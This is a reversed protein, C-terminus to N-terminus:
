SLEHNMAVTTAVEVDILDCQDVAKNGLIGAASAGIQRSQGTPCQCPVLDITSQFLHGGPDGHQPHLVVSEDCKGWRTALRGICRDSDGCTGIGTLRDALRGTVRLQGSKRGQIRFYSSGTASERVMRLVAAGRHSAVLPLSFGPQNARM